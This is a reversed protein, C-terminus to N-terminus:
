FNIAMRVYRNNIQTFSHTNTNYIDIESKGVNAKTVLVSLQINYSSDLM